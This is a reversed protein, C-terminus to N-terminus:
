RRAEGVPALGIPLARPAAIDHRRQCGPFRVTNALAEAEERAAALDRGQGVVTVVRGGATEWGGPGWRTGAHFVLGREAAAELGSIPLGTRPAVPYGPSALVIGVAATPRVPLLPGHIGLGQLAEALNGRAAALLLPGLALALRPLIVQAEPDGLRANCELLFPGQSTLMLGAYLAGRYPTGRRALEALLPRHIGEVIAAVGEDTLDPLPSYAGMGGTNPGQDGDQLRKHDRAAPLACLTAGDTLVIVSAEWGTLREEIVVRPTVGAEAPSGPHVPLAFCADLAAELEAPDTVVTVGKGGALGDAKVVAGGREALLRRGFQLAAERDAFSAAPAMPVGAAAALRHCFAKSTEIRAAAASPGFVPIGAAALADAVGAALPAEPGVVVLEAAVRRAAAVVAGPDHPDVERLCSVRPLRAIGDNGPAVYIANVGPEDALKWAIAHERGGGGLVLIRTPTMAPAM